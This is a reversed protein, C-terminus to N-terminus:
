KLTLIHWQNCIKYCHSKWLATDECIDPSNNYYQLSKWRKDVTEMRSTAEHDLKPFIKLSCKAEYGTLIEHKVLHLQAWYKKKHLEMTCISIKKYCTSNIGRILLSLSWRYLIQQVRPAGSQFVKDIHSFHKRKLHYWM